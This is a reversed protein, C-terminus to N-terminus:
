RGQYKDTEGISYYYLSCIMLLILGLVYFGLSSLLIWTPLFASVWTWSVIEDHEVSYLFIQAVAYVRLLLEVQKECVFVAVLGDSFIRCSFWM